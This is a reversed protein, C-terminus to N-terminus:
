RPPRRRKLRELQGRTIKIAGREATRFAGALKGGSFYRSITDPSVGLEAAIAARGIILGDRRM